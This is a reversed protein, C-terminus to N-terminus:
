RRFLLLGLTVLSNLILIATYLKPLGVLKEKEVIVLKEVEKIEIPGPLLVPKEVVEIEKIYIPTPIEVKEVKIVEFPEPVKIYEVKTEVIKEQKDLLKISNNVSDLSAKVDNLGDIVNSNDVKLDTKFEGVFRFADAEDDFAHRWIQSPDKMSPQRM